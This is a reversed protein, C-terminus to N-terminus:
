RREGGTQRGAVRHARGHLLRLGAIVRCQYNVFAVLEALRVIDDDGVGAAYLTDILARSADRPRRTVLDTYGLLARLRVDDGGDYATDALRSTGTGAHTHDNSGDELQRRFHGALDDAGNLRAVRCALAAREAHSLGGPERPQLVSRLTTETLAFSHARGAITATLPTESELGAAALTTSVGSAADNDDAPIQQM